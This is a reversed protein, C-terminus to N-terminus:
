RPLPLLEHFGATHQAFGPPPMSNWYEIPRMISHIIEGSSFEYGAITTGGPYDRLQMRVRDITLPGDHASGYGAALNFLSQEVSVIVTTLAGPITQDAAVLGYQLIYIGPQQIASAPITFSTGCGSAPTDDANLATLEGGCLHQLMGKYSSGVPPEDGALCLTPSTGASVQYGANGMVQPCDTLSSEGPYIVTM